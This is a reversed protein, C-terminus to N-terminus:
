QSIIVLNRLVIDTIISPDLARIYDSAAKKALGKNLEADLHAQVAPAAAELQALRDEDLGDIIEKVLLKANPQDLGAEGMCLRLDPLAEVRATGLLRWKRNGLSVKEADLGTQEDLLALREAEKEALQISLPAKLDLQVQKDILLQDVESQLANVELILADIEDQLVIIQPDEPPLADIEDTKDDILDQKETILNQKEDLSDDIVSIADNIPDIEGQINGIEVQIASLEQGLNPLREDIEAIRADIDAIEDAFLTLPLLFLLLLIKM